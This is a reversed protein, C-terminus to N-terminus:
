RRSWNKDRLSAHIPCFEHCPCLESNRKLWELQQHFQFLFPSHPPLHRDEKGSLCITDSHENSPAGVTGDSLMQYSRSLSLCPLDPCSPLLPLLLWLRQPSVSPLRPWLYFSQSFLAFESAMASKGSTLRISFITFYIHMQTGTHLGM